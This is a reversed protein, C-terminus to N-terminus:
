PRAKRTAQPWGQRRSGTARNLRSRSATHPTAVARKPPGPPLGRSQYDRDPDLTLERILEGTHQHTIRIHLDNILLLVPTGRLQAGVGIHYLRSNHRVTVTGGSDIKDTRLRHHAAIVPGSPVAKPRAAYAKAPTRRGV